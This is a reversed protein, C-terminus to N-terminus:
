TSASKGDFPTQYPPEFIINDITSPDGSGDTSFSIAIYPFQQGNNTTMYTSYSLSTIDSLKLGNLAETGIMAGGDGGGNTALNVSGNGLPPTGPGTVFAATGATPDVVYGGNFTTLVWGGLNSPSIVTPDALALHSTTIVLSVVALLLLRKM